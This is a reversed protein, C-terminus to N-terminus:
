EQANLLAICKDIERMLRNVRAKTHENNADVAKFIQGLEAKAARQKADELKKALDTNDDALKKNKKELADNMSLLKSNIAILRKVKDDISDIVPLRAM